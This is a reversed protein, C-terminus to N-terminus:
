PLTNTFTPTYNHTHPASTLLLCIIEEKKIVNEIKIKGDRNPQYSGVWHCHLLGVCLLLLCELVYKVLENEGSTILM